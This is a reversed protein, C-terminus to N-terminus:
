DGFQNPALHSGLIFSQLNVLGISQVDAGSELYALAPPSWQVKTVATSPSLVIAASALRQPQAPNSIDVIWLFQFGGILNGFQDPSGGLKGGVVALLDNTEIPDGPRRVYSYRPILALDRPFGPVSLESVKTPASPNSLDYVVVAGDLPGARELAYAYIGRMVVGGGSVIESLDGDIRPTTRFRLIFSELPNKAPSIDTIAPSLTLTYTGPELNYYSITLIRQDSSLLLVPGDSPPSIQIASPDALVSRDIPENFEITIPDGSNLAVALGLPDQQPQSRVVRPRLRDNSDSSVPNPLVVPSGGFQIVYRVDIPPVGAASAQARLLVRAAQTCSVSFTFRTTTPGVAQQSIQAKTVDSCTVTVAPNFSVVEDCLLQVQPQGSGHSVLVTLEATGGPPPLSPSHSISVRPPNLDPFGERPVAFILDTLRAVTAAASALVEVRQGFHSPHQATLVFQEPGSSPDLPNGITPAPLMFAYSGNARSLTFMSGPDLRGPRAGTFVKQGVPRVTVVAGGLPKVATPSGNTDFAIEFVRGTFLVPQSKIAMLLPLVALEKVVPSAGPAVGQSLAILNAADQAERVEDPPHLLLHAGPFPESHTVLHGNEYQMKDALMYVPDGQLTSPVLLAFVSEEPAGNTVGAQQLEAETVPISIDFSHTMEDGETSIRIGRGLLKGEVPPTNSMLTLIEAVSISEIKFKTKVPIAGPEIIVQVPGGDSEAELIGGASYLGVSGDDFKQETATITTRTGNANVFVADILDAEDANVFGFFSGDPKSLVTSTEGTTENVLIVPQEAEATGPSGFAVVSNKNTVPDFAVLQSLINPPINTAGPEFITLKALDGRATQKQTEFVFQNQGELRLGSLDAINTSIVVTYRAGSELPDTPLLTVVTNRLNVTFSATVPQGNTGLVQIANGLLTAPNVPESFAIEIPTVRSVNVAGNTPNISIVRPGAAASALSTNATANPDTVVLTSQGTDGTAPDTVAVNVSGIPALLKFSGDARSFALWPQGAIRVPMGGNPQGASNRALGTVLAQRSNVRLLLYQGAGFIGDLRDGSSPEATVLKGASDTTLRELPQLGYQGQDYLVRALVLIGNTPAGTIQAVLRRDLAVGSVTLDFAAVIIVNTPVLDLFNTPNVRRLQAAQNGVVDGSGALLRLGEASVQGGRSDLVSGGFPTPTLVEMKVTAEELEESGFLFIPRMPFEAQLTSASADGPRQYGIVFNEYQPPHRSTGESLRYNELVEGRLVLGSPLLANSPHSIIVEATATVLEPVRSAPSSSPNVQGTATLLAMDPLGASSAQLAQGVQPAPPAIPAVDGVVLAYAGGVNLIATIANTGNSPVLQVAEWQLTNENLRALAATEGSGIPGSPRLAATAPTSIPGSLELWFAQLPSWGPPLLAPLTQGTLLTVTAATNQNVAGAPFNIQIAGAADRMQGGDLLTITAANTGRRTLRPSAVIAVDGTSLNQQRWVPLYGSASFKWLHLGSGQGVTAVGFVADTTLNTPGVPGTEEVQVGTLPQGTENLSRVLALAVGGRNPAAFVKTVLSPTGTGVGMTLTREPTGEGPSLAGDAVSATFEYFAKAPTSDDAGDAQQPGTTGTFSEVFLVFPGQIIRSSKNTLLAEVNWVNQARNLRMSRYRVEVESSVDELTLNAGGLTFAKEAAVLQSSISAALLFLSAAILRVAAKWAAAPQGTSRSDIFGTRRQSVSM